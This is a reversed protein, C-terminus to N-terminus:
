RPAPLPALVVISRRYLTVVGPQKSGPDSGPPPSGPPPASAQAEGEGLVGPGRTM